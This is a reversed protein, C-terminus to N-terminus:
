PSSPRNTGSFLETINVMCYLFALLGRLHRCIGSAKLISGLLDMEIFWIVTESIWIRITSCLFITTLKYTFRQGTPLLGCPLPKCFRQVLPIQSQSSLTPLVFRVLCTSTELPVSAFFFFHTLLCPLLDTDLPGFSVITDLLPLVPLSLNWYWSKLVLFAPHDVWM